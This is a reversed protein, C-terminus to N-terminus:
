PSVIISGLAVENGFMDFGFLDFAGRTTDGNSGLRVLGSPGDYDVNRGTELLEECDAFTTCSTGGTSTSQMRPGISEPRTSGAATASLAILNVCDFANTAFYTPSEPAHLRLQDLFALDPLAREGVGTIRELDDDPLGVFAGITARGRMADNVFVPTTEDLDSDLVSIVLEPGLVADGIVAVVEAGSSVIEDIEARWDTDSEHFPVATAVSLSRAELRRSLAEAYPRGYADDIYLIGVRARGTQDIARAMAEAAMSDSPVTRFFMNHDPFEDLALASATPSCVVTGNGLATSLVALTVSNSVPGIIADVDSENLEALARAATTPDSGEDQRILRVARGSVGGSENVLEVALETASRISAGIESGPGSLPALLGIRLIGDDEVPVTTSTTTSATTSTTASQDDDGSCAVLGILASSALFAVTTRRM